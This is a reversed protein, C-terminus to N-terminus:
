IGLPAVGLNLGIRGGSLYMKPFDEVSSDVFVRVATKLGIPSCGGHVYGTLPFLKALPLMALSKVGAAPAAAKLDLAKGVPIVFVFYERRDTCTVLTKCVRGAPMGIRAAKRGRYKEAWATTNSHTTNSEQRIWCACPM